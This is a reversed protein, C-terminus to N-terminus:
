IFWSSLIASRHCIKSRRRYRNVLFADIPSVGSSALIAPEQVRQLKVSVLGRIPFKESPRPSIVRDQNRKNKLPCFFRNNKLSSHRNQRKESTTTTQEEEERKTSMIGHEDDDDVDMQNQNLIGHQRLRQLTTKTNIHHIFIGGAQEWASRLRLAIM